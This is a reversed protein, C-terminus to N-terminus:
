KKLLSYEQPYCLLYVAMAAYWCIALTFLDHSPFHAGRIQQGVGFVAGLFLGFILGVIRYPSRFYFLVFYLSLFCYGGSAHGAPFAYGIPADSPISDLLRIYPQTGNFLQLDWPTHIHTINKGIGVLIPGAASACLFVLSIKRHKTFNKNLNIYIFVILWILAFFKDLLQGGSHVTTDFFWHHRYLWIQSQADYFHSVWWVDFGSYEFILAFFLLFLPFLVMFQFKEIYSYVKNM